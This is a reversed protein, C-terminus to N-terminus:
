KGEKKLTSYNKNLRFSGGGEMALQYDGDKVNYKAPSVKNNIISYKNKSMSM